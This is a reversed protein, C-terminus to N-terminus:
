SDAGRALRVAQMEEPSLTIDSDGASLGKLYTRTESRAHISTIVLGDGADDLLAASFSFRGGRDGFADYRVVSVHRLAMALDRRTAALRSELTLVEDRLDAFEDDHAGHRRRDDGPGRRGAAVRLRPLDPVAEHARLRGPVGWRRRGCHRRAGRHAGVPSRIDRGSRLRGTHSCERTDCTIVSRKDRPPALM